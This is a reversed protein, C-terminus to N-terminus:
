VNNLCTTDQEYLIWLKSYFIDDKLGETKSDTFDRSSGGSESKTKVHSQHKKKKRANANANANTM